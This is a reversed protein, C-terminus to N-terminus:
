IIDFNNQIETISLQLPFNGQTFFFHKEGQFIYNDAVHVNYGAGAEQMCFPLM